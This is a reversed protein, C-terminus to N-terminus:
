GFINSYEEQMEKAESFCFIESKHSNIKLGYLQQFACLLLNLNRDKTPDDDLFIITDGAHQLISLGDDVLHPVVGDIQGEIKARNILIASMDVVINLLLPSLTGCQRLGKKTQFKQGV